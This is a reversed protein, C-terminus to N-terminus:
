EVVIEKELLKITRNLYSLYLAKLALTLVAVIVTIILTVVAEELNAAMILATAIVAGLLAVIVSLAVQLWFLSGWKGALTPDQEEILEGHAHYEQYQAVIACIDGVLGLLQIGLVTIGLSVGYFIASKKYRANSGTLMFLLYATVGSVALGIWRTLGNPLFISLLAIVTAAIGVYMLYRLWKVTNSNENM